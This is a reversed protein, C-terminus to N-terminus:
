RGIVVRAEPEVMEARMRLLGVGEGLTMSAGLGASAGIYADRVGKRSWRGGADCAEFVARMDDRHEAGPALLYVQGRRVSLSVKGDGSSNQGPHSGLLYEIGTQRGDQDFDAGIRAAGLAIQGPRFHRSAWEYFPTTFESVRTLVPDPGPIQPWELDEFYFDDFPSKEPEPYDEGNDCLVDPPDGLDLESQSALYRAGRNLEGQLGAVAENGRGFFVNPGYGGINTAAIAACRKHLFVNCRAYYTTISGDHGLVLGGAGDSMIGWGWGYSIGDSSPYPTHLRKMACPSIELSGERGNLHLRLFKAWDQLSCYGAGAAAWTPNLYPNEDVWISGPINDDPDPDVEHHGYPQHVGPAKGPVGFAFTWMGLPQVLEQFFLTEFSKGTAKELMAAIMVFNINAYQYSGVPLQFPDNGVLADMANYRAQKTSIDTRALEDIVPQPVLGSEIGCRHAALIEFTAFHYRGQMKGSWEPFLQAVSTNWDVIGRDALIGVLTATMAKTDSGLHWYDNDTVPTADGYKRVGNSAVLVSGKAPVIAGAMAPARHQFRELLMRQRMMEADIIGRVLRVQKMPVGLAVDSADRPQLEIDYYDRTPWSATGITFIEADLSSSPASAFDGSAVVWGNPDFAKWSGKAAFGGSGTSFTRWRLRFSEDDFVGVEKKWALPALRSVEISHSVIPPPQPPPYPSDGPEQGGEGAPSLSATAIFVLSLHLPLAHHKPPHM